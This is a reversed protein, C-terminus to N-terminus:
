LQEKLFQVQVGAPDTVFFFRVGPAPSIIQTPELGKSQLEARLKDVDDTHFGISFAGNGSDTVENSEIVEIKTDEEKESLFVINSGRGRLDRVVKLGVINKYFDIEEHFYRTRITIHGMKM